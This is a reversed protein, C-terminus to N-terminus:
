HPNSDVHRKLFYELIVKRNKALKSAIITPRYIRWKIVSHSQFQAEYSDYTQDDNTENFKSCFLLFCTIFSVLNWEWWECHYINRCDALKKIIRVWLNWLNNMKEKKVRESDRKREIEFREDLFIILHCMMVSCISGIGWM